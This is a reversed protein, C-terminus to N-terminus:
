GYRKAERLQDRVFVTVIEELEHMAMEIRIIDDEYLHENSDIERKIIGNLVERCKSIEGSLIKAKSLPTDGTVIKLAQDRVLQKLSIGLEDAEQTLMEYEQENFEPRISKM